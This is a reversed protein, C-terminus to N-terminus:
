KRDQWCVSKWQSRIIAYLKVDRYAGKAYLYQHLTGECCFGLKALVRMSATNEVFCLAEVRNLNMGEFGFNVAAAVAETAYGRGWYEEGLAYGIEARWHLPHCVTFGCSGILRGTAKEVVGWPAAQGKRYATLVAQLYNESDAPCRHVRWLLYRAVRENSAYAFVDRVDRRTLPRLLLRRTELRPLSRFVSALNM